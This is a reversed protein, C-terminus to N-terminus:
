VPWCDHDVRIQNGRKPLSVTSSYAVRWWQTSASKSVLGRVTSNSSCRNTPSASGSPATSSSKSRQRSFVVTGSGVRLEVELIAHPGDRRVQLLRLVGLPLERWRTTPSSYDYDIEAAHALYMGDIQGLISLTAGTSLRLDVRGLQLFPVSHHQWVVSTVQYPEEPEEVWSLANEFGFWKSVEAGELVELPVVTPWQQNDPM